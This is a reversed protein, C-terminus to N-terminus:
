VTKDTAHTYLMRSLFTAGLVFIIVALTTYPRKQKPDEPTTTATATASPTIEETQPPPTIVPITTSSFTTNQVNFVFKKEDEGQILLSVENDYNEFFDSFVETYITLADSSQVPEPCTFTGELFTEKEQAKYVTIVLPCESGYQKIEFHQRVYDTMLSEATERGYTDADIRESATM